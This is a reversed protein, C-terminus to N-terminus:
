GKRDFFGRVLEIEEESIVGDDNRDALEFMVQRQQFEALSVKGDNDADMADWRKALRAEMITARDIIAQRARHMEDEDVAGDGNRDMREFLKTRVVISEEKTIKGDGNGDLRAFRDKGAPQAHAAASVTLVITTLTVTVMKM